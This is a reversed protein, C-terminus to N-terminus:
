RKGSRLAAISVRHGGKARSWMVAPGEYSHQEHADAAQQHCDDDSQNHPSDARSSNLPQRLEDKVRRESFKSPDNESLVLTVRSDESARRHSHVFRVITLLLRELRRLDYLPVPCDRAQMVICRERREDGVFFHERDHQRM